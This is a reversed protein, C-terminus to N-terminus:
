FPPPDDTEAKTEAGESSDSSVSGSNKEAGFQESGSDNSPKEGDTPRFVPGTTSRSEACGGPTFTPATPYPEPRSTVVQGLPTRWELIGDGLNTVTWPKEHKLVHHVKCLSSLNAASTAGGESYPHTHDIECRTAPRICGPFRCQQDRVQILRRLAASPEYTDVALVQGTVPHTLVRQFTPAAATLQRAEPFSIPRMGDLLAPATGDAHGDLLALVPVTLNVKATVRTEGPTACLMTEAFVDARIQDATRTDTAAPDIQELVDQLSHQKSPQDRDPSTAEAISALADKVAGRRAKMNEQKIEKARADLLDKIPAALESPLYARLTAMGFDDHNLTVRREARAQEHTREFSAAAVTSALRAAQNDTQGVSNAEAYKLLEAGFEAYDEEGLISIHRLMTRAHAVEIKGAEISALWDPFHTVLEYADYGRNALARPSENTKVAFDSLLSTFHWSFVKEQSEVGFSDPTSASTREVAIEYVTALLRIIGAEAVGRSRRLEAYVELKEQAEAVRLDDAPLHRGTNARPRENPQTTM